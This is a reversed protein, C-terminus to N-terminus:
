LSARILSYEIFACTVFPCNYLYALFVSWIVPFCWEAEAPMLIAWHNSKNWVRLLCRSRQSPSLCTHAQGLHMSKSEQDCNWSIVLNGRWYCNFYFVSHFMSCNIPCHCSYPFICKRRTRWKGICNGESKIEAVKRQFFTCGHLWTM